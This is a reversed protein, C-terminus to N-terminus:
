SSTQLLKTSSSDNDEASKMSKLQLDYRRALEIMNTMATAINVNSSELAGSVITVNADAPTEGGGSLQFLGGDSRELSDAPPNVLKIRGAVTTTQATQGLPIISISGDHGVFLSAYPPVAIPGSDSLVQYGAATTLQGNADVRLDGARTYAETGNPGQVAIWGQGQVAVDLNRGTQEVTGGSADWGTSSSTAYARSPLGAGQVQQAQFASLDARFGVTSANALNYNNATQARLSEKAGSMAVYVLRDM